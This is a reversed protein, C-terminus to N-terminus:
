DAAAANKRPRGRKRTSTDGNVGVAKNQVMDPQVAEAEVVRGMAKLARGETETLDVVTQAARPEGGAVCGRLVLYKPM